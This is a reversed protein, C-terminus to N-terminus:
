HGLRKKDEGNGKINRQEIKIKGFTYTAGVTFRRTDLTVNVNFTQGPIYNITRLGLTYFIDNIGASVNLKDKLFSRKISFNAGWRSKTKNSGSLWPSVYVGSIEAKFGKPLNIINSINGYGSPASRTFDIGGLSGTYKFYYGTVSLSLTWWKVVDKSFFASLAYTEFLHLNGIKGENVKTSADQLSYGMIINTTRSYSFSGGVMGKYNHSIEYNNTFKPYLFPNGIGYSLLNGYFQRYPNFNNYDPRDIRRSFSIQFTHKDNKSYSVSAAPFLNFYQRKYAIGSTVSLTQLNTNEARLGGQLSFKNLQKQLNVYAALIQDKYTFTNTYTTDTIYQGTTNDLNQLKYISNMNDFSSKAGTELSFTKSLKKEFDLRMLITKVHITNTNNFNVSPAAVSGNTYFNNQFTGPYVDNYPGYFDGNFKIKTGLSDFLHEANFNTYIYNWTNPVSARFDLQNYGLSNDSINNEGGRISHTSGPIDEVRIGITNKDNVFWDLGVFINAMVGSEHQNSHENLSTTVGNFTVSRQKLNTHLYGDNNINIGSFFTFKKAKYNLTIGGM